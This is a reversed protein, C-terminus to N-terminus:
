PVYGLEELRDLVEPDALTVEKTSEALGALITDLVARLRSEAANNTGTLNRRECPDLERDFFLDGLATRHILTYREDSVSYAWGAEFNVALDARILRHFYAQRKEKSEYLDHGTPADMPPPPQFGTLGSPIRSFRRRESFTLGRGRDTEGRLLPLLSRAPSLDIAGHSGGALKLLTPLIDAHAAPTTIRARTFRADTAYVILPVALEERYLFRGHLLWDHNGLGEGHDGTIVWVAPRRRLTRVHDFFTRLADDVARVEGDYSDMLAMMKWPDDDFFELDVCRERTMWDVFEAAQTEGAGAFLSEPQYPSHPDWLHLWLFLPRPETRSALWEVARHVTERATRSDTEYGHSNSDEFYRFGRDLGAPRFHASTSVFAATQYGAAGLVQAATLVGPRILEGNAQAGHQTPYLGTLITAHSPVTTSSAAIANEFLVGHNALDDLFPTTERVYGYSSLHDARLTDVTVLVLDPRSQEQCAVLGLCTLVLSVHLGVWWTPGSFADGPLNANM